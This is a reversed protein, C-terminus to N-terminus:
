SISSGDLRGRRWTPTARTSPSPPRWRPRPEFSGSWPSAVPMTFRPLGPDVARRLPRRRRPRRRRGCPGRRRPRACRASGPRATM